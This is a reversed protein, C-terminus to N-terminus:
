ASDLCCAEKKAADLLSQLQEKEAQEFFNFM